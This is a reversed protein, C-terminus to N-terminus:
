KKLEGNIRQNIEKLPNVENKIKAFFDDTKQQQEIRAQRKENARARISDFLDKHKQEDTM